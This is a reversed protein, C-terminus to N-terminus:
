YISLFRFIMRKTTWDISGVLHLRAQVGSGVLDGLVHVVLGIRDLSEDDLGGVVGILVDVSIALVDLM